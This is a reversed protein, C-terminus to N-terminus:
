SNKSNQSVKTSAKGLKRWFSVMLHLDNLFIRFSIVESTRTESDIEEDISVNNVWAMYQATSAAKGFCHVINAAWLHLRGEYQNNRLLTVDISFISALRINKMVHSAFYQPLIEDVDKPNSFNIKRLWAHFDDWIDAVFEPMANKNNRLTNREKEKGSIRMESM